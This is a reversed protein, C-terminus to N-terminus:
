TSPTKKQGIISFLTQYFRDRSGYPHLQIYVGALDQAEEMSILQRSHIEELPSALADIGITDAPFWIKLVRWILKKDILPIMAGKPLKRLPAIFHILIHKASHNLQSPVFKTEECHKCFIELTTNQNEITLYPWWFEFLEEQFKAEACVMAFSLYKMSTPKNLLQQFFATFPMDLITPMEETRKTGDTVSIKSLSIKIKLIDTPSYQHLTLLRDLVFEESHNVEGPTEKTRWLHLKTSFLVDRLGVSGSQELLEDLSARSFFDFAANTSKFSRYLRIPREADPPAHSPSIPPPQKPSTPAPKKIWSKPAAPSAPKPGLQSKIRLLEKNRDYFFNGFLQRIRTIIWLWWPSQNEPHCKDLEEIKEILAYKDRLSAKPDAEWVSFRKVLENLTLEEYCVEVYRGGHPRVKVDTDNIDPIVKEFFKQISTASPM